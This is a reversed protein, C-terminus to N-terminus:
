RAHLRDAEDVEPRLRVSLPTLADSSRWDATVPLRAQVVRRFRSRRPQRRSLISRQDRRRLAARPEEQWALWAHLVAKRRKSEFVQRGKDSRGSDLVRRVSYHTTMM